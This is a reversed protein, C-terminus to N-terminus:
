DVIIGHHNLYNICSIRKRSQAWARHWNLLSRAEMAVDPGQLHSDSESRNYIDLFLIIHIIAHLCSVVVDTAGM